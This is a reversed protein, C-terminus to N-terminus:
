SQKASLRDLREIEAVILAGAKVLNRRRDSPKWWKWDWPWVKSIIEDFAPGFAYAGAAHAMEGAGHEDDHEPTWKEKCVQRERENAIDAIVGASMARRATEDESLRKM